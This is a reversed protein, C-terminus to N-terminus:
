PVEVDSQATVDAIGQVTRSFRTLVDSLAANPVSEPLHVIGEAAHFHAQGM